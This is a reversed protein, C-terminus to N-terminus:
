VFILKLKRNEDFNQSIRCSTLNKNQEFLKEIHCRQKLIDGVTSKGIGYKESCKRHSKLKDYDNILNMKEELTLDIRKRKASM